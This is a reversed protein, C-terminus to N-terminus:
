GGAGAHIELICNNKDYEGSLYTLLEIDNYLKNDRKYEEELLQILEDDEVINNLININNIVSSKLEKIPEVLKKLSNLKDIVLNADDRNWFSNDMTEEELEM